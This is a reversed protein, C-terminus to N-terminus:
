AIFTFALPLSHDLCLAAFSVKKALAFFPTFHQALGFHVRGIILLPHWGLRTYMDCVCTRTSPSFPVFLFDITSTRLHLITWTSRTVLTQYYKTRIRVLAFGGITDNLQITIKQAGSRPRSNRERNLEDVDIENTKSESNGAMGACIALELM